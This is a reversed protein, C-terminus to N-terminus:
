KVSPTKNASFLKEVTEAAMFGIGTGFVLSMLGAMAAIKGLLPHLMWWVFLGVPLRHLFVMAQFSLAFRENSHDAIHLASGEIVTHTLLGLIGLVAALRDYRRSLQKNLREFVIPMIFGVMVYFLVPEGAMEILEPAMLFLLIGPVALFIYGDLLALFNRSKKAIQFLLPGILLAIVSLLFTSNM